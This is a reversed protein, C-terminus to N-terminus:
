KSYKIILEKLFKVTQVPAKGISTEGSLLFGTIKKNILNYISEVESFEPRKGNKMSNLIHTGIIIEKEGLINIQKIIEEQYIPAKVITSEPILDGRGIVVGDVENIIEAGNKVGNPTEIKAWIYPNYKEKKEKIYKKIIKIDEVEEVFSQCIIEINQKICWDLYGKDKESLEGKKRSIGLINCGKGGRVIGGSTVLAKIGKETYEIIEFQMTNDKMSINKIKESDLNKSHINLPIIKIKDKSAYTPKLYKDEGCILIEEGNYIKYIYPLKDSIRIKGGSLDGMIHVKEDINKINKQLKAFEELNGHSFNFRFIDVGNEILEKLVKKEKCSPGTTAIIRMKGGGSYLIKPQRKKIIRSLRM